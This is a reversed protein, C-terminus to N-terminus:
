QGRADSILFFAPNKLPIRARECQYGAADCILKTCFFDLRETSFKSKFRSLGDSEDLAHGGGLHMKRYGSNGYRQLASAMLLEMGQLKMAIPTAASLHYHVWGTEDLLFFAGALLNGNEEDHIEALECHAHLALAHEVFFDESFFYYASTQKQHMLESYLHYFASVRDTSCDALPYFTVRLGARRAYNVSWRLKQPIGTLYTEFSDSPQLDASYTYRNLETSGSPWQTHNSLFPSHRVFLALISESALFCRLQDAEAEHLTLNGFLGGYGYASYAEKRGDGLDRILMPLYSTESQARCKLLRADSADNISLMTQYARGMYVPAVVDAMDPVWSFEIEAVQNILYLVL